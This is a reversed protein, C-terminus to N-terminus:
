GHSGRRAEKMIADGIQTALSPESFVETLYPRELYKAGGVPHVMDMREHVVGAYPAAPGGYGMIVTVGGSGDYIVPQVHGTGRLAGTNVPVYEAKSKAMIDEAKQYLIRGVVQNAREELMRLAEEMEDFGIAEFQMEM